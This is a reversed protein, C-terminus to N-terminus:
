QRYVYRFQNVEERAIKASRGAHETELRMRREVIVTHPLLTDPETILRITRDDTLATVAVGSQGQAALRELFPSLSAGAAETRVSSRMRLKVCRHLEDDRNCAASGLYEFTMRIPVPDGGILPFPGTTNLAYTQNLVLKAGAWAGVDRGWDDLLRRELVERTLSRELIQRFSRQSALPLRNTFGDFIRRLRGMTNNLGRLSVIKGEANVVFDPYTAVIQAILQRFERQNKDELEVSEPEVKMETVRVVLADGEAETTLTYSGRSGQRSDAGGRHTTRAGEFSVRAFLQAPWAFRLTVEPPSNDRQTPSEDTAAGVAQTASESAARPVPQTQAHVSIAYGAALVGAIAGRRAQRCWFARTVFLNGM